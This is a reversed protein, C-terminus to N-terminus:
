KGAVKQQARTAASAVAKLSATVIDSDMGVGYLTGAGNSGRIQVYAAAQADAGASVADEHYDLVTLALGCEQRLADVFAAIPGNGVGEIQRERGDIEVTAAIRREGARPEPLISYDVLKIGHRGLYTDEFLQWIMDSTIEKGTRDAVEQVVRSFEIQLGRPLDLGHDAKLVYAVGGKGSQSNVRIVAEYTRGLDKPDIPLYPVEWLDDNRKKLADFGKKIADQHSGSFATFVLEGAYPHRPHVPLQTCYESTRVVDDIDSIVLGPEVGQSFLNLALTVVDVNGTREGNGFLTGEVREAGAMIGFETAAVATGRDNHPHLSLILSDRDRVHRAFWEIQDAYVNATAMEVTGPLNVIMKKDPTPQWVDMVAECIEVAFDLETGSFSEPSYQYVIETEPMTAALDRIQRAGTVAIDIIGARDLGFVVRRQLESTSNYLHVIARKAGRVAEFTKDILEARSQTLVQITVDEPILNEDIIERVFAYDTESAAPFGVEIEKFGLKLLMDFLRRKREPGMPEILAQNGDRLDVSCWTPAQTISRAPWQRNPLNIPPFPRYKHIPMVTM